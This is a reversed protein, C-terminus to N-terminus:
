HAKSAKDPVENGPARLVSKILLDALTPHKEGLHLYNRVLLGVYTQNEGGVLDPSAPFM